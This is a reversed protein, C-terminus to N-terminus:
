ELFFIKQSVKLLQSMKLSFSQYVLKRSQRLLSWLSMQKLFNTVTSTSSFLGADNRCFGGTDRTQSIFPAKSIGRLFVLSAVAWTPLLLEMEGTM